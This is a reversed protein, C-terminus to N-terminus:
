RTVIVVKRVGEVEEERVYNVVVRGVRVWREVRKQQGIM